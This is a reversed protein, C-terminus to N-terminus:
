ENNFTIHNVTHILGALEGLKDIIIDLAMHAENLIKQLAKRHPELSLIFSLM